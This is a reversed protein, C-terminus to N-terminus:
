RHLGPYKNRLKQESGKQTKKKGGGFKSGSKTKSSNGDGSGVLHPKKKKLAKVVRDVDDSDITIQTPDDEDQEVDIEGRDVLRRVDEPDRFKYKRAVQDLEFDLAQEALKAALKESREIAAYDPKEEEDKSKDKSKNPKPKPPDQKQLQRLQRQLDKRARREKKLASKLGAAEDDEDKAKKKKKPPKSEEDDEDEDEDEDSSEDADDDEEEEEDDEDESSEEDSEDDDDEDEDFGVIIPPLETNILGRSRRLWWPINGRM